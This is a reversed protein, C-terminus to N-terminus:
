GGFLESFRQKNPEADDLAKAANLPILQISDRSPFGAPPEIGERAPLYGQESVLQQGEASLLFDVFRQAAEPQAADKLIAVPETVATVGEQPFVFQIPSGKAAERIAMFDVIVGYPHTGATIASLVAGNGAQASAGNQKLAAYYDWGLEAQDTLAALHILAAGSYLPSPMVVQNRYQENVLDQWSDPQQSARTHYAIGTTIMKTGYYYGEADYLEADYADREPSLYAQLLGERKLSELTVNDAILLVDPKSIGASLEARLRTILQTTGDRVWDVQIDPNARTFADVTMQADTNPQSTYLTLTQQAFAAGPLTLATALLWTRLTPTSM